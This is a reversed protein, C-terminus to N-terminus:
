NAFTKFDEIAKDRTQASVSEEDKISSDYYIMMYKGNDSMTAQIKADNDAKLETDSLTYYGKSKVSNIVKEATDSLKDTDFSYLEVSATDKTYRHGTEAGILEANMEKVYKEDTVIYGKDAMFDVLGEYTDKYETKVEETSAQTEEQNVTTATQNGDALPDFSSACGTLATALMTISLLSIFLKKM